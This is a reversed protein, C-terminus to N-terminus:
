RSPSAAKIQSTQDIPVFIYEMGECRRITAQASSAIIEDADVNDNGMLRYAAEREAPTRFAATITGAPMSALSSAM